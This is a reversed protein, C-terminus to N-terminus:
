IMMMKDFRARVRAARALVDPPPASTEALEFLLTGDYGIKQIAMLAPAWEIGGEFPVLHDDARGDNDHVHTTILHGSVHEVADVVDGLLNAHGFDLCLGVNTGALDEELMRVLSEPTSIENPIVELALRVRFPEAKKHLEEVSRLAADRADGGGVPQHGRPVGLHLVMVGTPVRRALELSQVAERVADQRCAQDPSALSYNRGVWKDGRGFAEMIPAHIGHLRLGLERLWGSLGDLAAEDHYDVHSRTAFVEVADFGAAAIAELHGRSLRSAHYLHTSIGYRM